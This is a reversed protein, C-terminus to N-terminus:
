SLMSKYFPLTRGFINPAFFFFFELLIKCSWFVKIDAKTYKTRGTNGFSKKRSLIERDLNSM